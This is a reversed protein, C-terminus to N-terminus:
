PPGRYLIHEYLCIFTHEYLCTYTHIYLCLKDRKLPTAGNSGRVIKHLIRNSKTRIETSGSPVLPVMKKAKKAM